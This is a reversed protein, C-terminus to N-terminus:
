AAVQEGQLRRYMYGSALVVVPIAVLLGIGCLLAGVAYAIISGIFFGILTGVNKNVLAISAKISEVPSLKKDILFYGWFFSMFMFILGPIVCLFYGITTGIAVLIAGVIYQGLQDTSFMTKLDFPKGYTM